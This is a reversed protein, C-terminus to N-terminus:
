AIAETRSVQVQHIDAPWLVAEAKDFKTDRIIFERTEGVHHLYTRVFQAAEINSVAPVYINENTRKEKGSKDDVDIFMVKVCYLGVGTEEEEEFFNCILSHVLKEDQQLVNNWLLESIKTKIVEINVSGFQTRDQNECLAYAVEEAETYSSAWVLEETKTKAMSGGKQESLWETKIRYYDFGQKM